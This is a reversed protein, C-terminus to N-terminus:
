EQERHRDDLHNQAAEPTLWLADGNALKLLAQEGSEIVTQLHEDSLAELALQVPDTQTIPIRVM